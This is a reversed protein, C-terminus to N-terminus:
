PSITNFCYLYTNEIYLHDVKAVINIFIFNFKFYYLNVMYEMDDMCFILLQLNLIQFFLNIISNLLFGVLCQYFINTRLLDKHPLIDISLLLSPTPISWKLLGLAKM